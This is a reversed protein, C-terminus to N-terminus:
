AKYIVLAHAPIHIYFIGDASEHAGSGGDSTMISEIKTVGYRAADLRVHKYKDDFNVLIIYREDGHHRIYGYACDIRYVYDFGGTSFAKSSRRLRTLKKIWDRM